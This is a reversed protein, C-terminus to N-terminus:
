PCIRRPPVVSESSCGKMASTLSAARCCFLSSIASQSSSGSCSGLSIVLVRDPSSVNTRSAIPALQAAADASAGAVLVDSLSASYRLAVSDGGVAEVAKEWWFPVLPLALLGDVPVLFVEALRLLFELLEMEALLWSSQCLGAFPGALYVGTVCVVKNPLVMGFNNVGTVVLRATVGGGEGLGAGLDDNSTVLM